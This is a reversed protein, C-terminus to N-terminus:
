PVLRTDVMCLYTDDMFLSPKPEWSHALGFFGEYIAMFSCIWLFGWMDGHFWLNLCDRMYRLAHVLGFFFFGRIDCHIFLDSFGEYIATISPPFCMLTKQVGISHRGSDRRGETNDGAMRRWCGRSSAERWNINNPLSAVLPVGRSPHGHWTPAPPWRRVWYTIKEREGYSPSM